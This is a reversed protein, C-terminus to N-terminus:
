NQICNILLHAMPGNKIAWAKVFGSIERYIEWYEYMCTYIGKRVWYQLRPDLTPTGGGGERIKLIHM